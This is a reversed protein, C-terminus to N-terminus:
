SGGYYKLWHSFAEATEARNCVIRIEDFSEDIRDMIGQIALRAARRIPYKRHGTGLAPFAIRTLGALAAQEMAGRYCRILNRDERAIGTKWDPSIAVILHDVPLNFPPVIFVDGPRPKYIHELIFDDLGVGAAAMVASNLSGGVDMSVPVMTVIAQVDRQKTLDGEVLRIKSILHRNSRPYPDAIVESM